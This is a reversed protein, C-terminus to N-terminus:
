RRCRTYQSRKLQRRRMDRRRPDHQRQDRQREDRHREGHHPRVGRLPPLRRHQQRRLKGHAVTRTGEGEVTSSSLTLASRSRWVQRSRHRIFISSKSRHMLGSKARVPCAAATATHGNDPGSRVDNARLSYKAKQGWIRCRGTTTRRMWRIITM